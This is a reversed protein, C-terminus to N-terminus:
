KPFRRGSKYVFKRSLVSTKLLNVLNSVQNISGVIARCGGIDQMESLRLRKMRALKSHISSIRKLRQAILAHSDIQRAKQRLNVQLTNLPFSHSARWNNITVFAQDLVDIEPHKGILIAGAEDVQEKTFQPTAWAMGRFWVREQGVFALIPVISM